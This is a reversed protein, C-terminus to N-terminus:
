GNLHDEDVDGASDGGGQPLFIWWRRWSSKVAALEKVVLNEVRRGAPFYSSLPWFMTSTSKHHKYKDDHRGCTGANCAHLHHPSRQRPHQPLHRPPGTATQGGGGKKHHDPHPHHPHYHHHHHPLHRPPGAAAECSRGKWSPHTSSPLSARSSSSSTASSSSLSPKSRQELCAGSIISSYGMLDFHYPAQIDNLLSTSETLPCKWSQHFQDGVFGPEAWPWFGHFACKSKLKLTLLMLPFLLAKLCDTKDVEAQDPQERHHFREM